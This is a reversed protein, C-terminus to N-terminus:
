SDIGKIEGERSEFEDTGFVESEIGGTNVVEIKDRRRRNLRRSRSYKRCSIQIIYPKWGGKWSRAGICSLIRDGIKYRIIM